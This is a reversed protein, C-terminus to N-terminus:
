NAADPKEHQDLMEMLNGASQEDLGSAVAAARFRDRGLQRRLGALPRLDGATATGIRLRITLARVRYAVTQDLNGLGESLSGLNAYSTATSAQDGIREFIDLARRYLPEAADYDGRKQALRGLQGYSRAAGAQDGIRERIDLSQHYLPEATDYDGRLEALMGLQHYSTATSAQDGIRELIDLARRYLPEAADYDGRLQALIGLQHYSGATRAQDGIREAIDLARRSLSDAADYDGRLEALIGLQHYSAAAGAQDGIREFIDLARRSLPEAADYDGRLEALIGLQHHGRATGAQDGIRELIDLAQRYLPEATDYDGRDQALMGLQHYSTAMNKQDGLRTFIELVQRHSREASDYDGRLQALTGLTGETAAAQPSDPALWTLTERCLEAARGYQGWTQLQTVAEFHAAMAEDAQGAAHHHYRAELLQEIDQERSQPITRVRWHWFAAARQHAHLTADPHLAAITGATWRHVVHRPDQDQAPVPVVLGANRAAAVAAALGDPADVPPRIEEAVDAQYRAYEEESLGADELSIKGDESRELAEKIAQQVRGIRAARDPDPPREAPQGAQFALATDDVPVRYVAAGILVETALPTASLRNLLDSLLIDDVSLTVAEALSADLDRGPRALWAAPDAIGRDRLRDEMREAVDDFRAQGGRLLADLYELTRPHGGVDRYARNKEEPTLADLGPLRWILKRTEAASLPGLHLAALRRGVSKPLTFPHRCTFLLRGRGPRRAWGALFAGLEPDRIKWGGGDPELNDEFNDLLVTMSIAPLIQEALVRARETWEQDAARLYLVVRGMREDETVSAAQHLRAGIEGLVDDVSVPGARSVVLGADAGLSRLVEAALTSKGVGGIGHLVLGAKPGGLVRCAQRMEARRGVFDGVERVVVGDALVPAQPPQVPGFPERRSFLPLRLARTTLAPTAWEAPGRLPSGPPLNQRDREAARRAGALALLPDPSADTALRRYFEASLATAYRDTVPAQMALVVPVGAAVLEAAFSALVAEGGGDQEEGGGDQKLRPGDPDAPAGAPPAQGAGPHLREERAALGTSCGSLVVMPLDAGAPVGEALLREATVPDPQGDATELLLEGPRAHCSLHLVHFGEPDQALAAHIAALSGENLVRVYAGGHGRTRAPEVAAVIRALEAEYDLLEAEATEPSAIAVLLRLPGRVKHVPATGLGGILRYAAVNRHLVLPSGGAESIEGSADPLQLAEWPLDSLPQGAVELGLELM